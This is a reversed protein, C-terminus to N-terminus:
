EQTEGGAQHNANANAPEDAHGGPGDNSSVESGSESSADETETDQSGQPGDMTEADQTSQAGDQTEGDNATQASGQQPGDATETGPAEASSSHQVVPTVPAAGAASLASGGFSLAALVGAGLLVKKGQKFMHVGETTTLEALM